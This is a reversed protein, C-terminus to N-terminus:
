SVRTPPAAPPAVLRCVLAALDDSDRVYTVAGSAVQEIEGIVVGSAAPGPMVRLVLSVPRQDISM